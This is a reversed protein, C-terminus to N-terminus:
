KKISKGEKFKSIGELIRKNEEDIKKRNEVATSAPLTDTPTDGQFENGSLMHRMIKIQFLMGMIMSADKPNNVLRRQLVFAQYLFWQDVKNRKESLISVATDSVKTPIQGYFDEVMLDVFENKFM